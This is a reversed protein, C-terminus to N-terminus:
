PNYHYGLQPNRAFNDVDSALIRFFDGGPLPAEDCDTPSMGNRIAWLNPWDLLVKYVKSQTVQRKDKDIWTIYWKEREIVNCYDCLWNITQDRLSVNSEPSSHVNILYLQYMGTMANLLYEKNIVYSRAIAEIWWDITHKRRIVDSTSAIGNINIEVSKIFTDAQCHLIYLLEEWESDNLDSLEKAIGCQSFIWQNALEFHVANLPYIDSNNHCFISRFASITNRLNQFDRQIQAWNTLLISNSSKLLTRMFPCCDWFLGYLNTIATIFKSRYSEEEIYKKPEYYAFLYLRKDVLFAKENLQEPVDPSFCISNNYDM